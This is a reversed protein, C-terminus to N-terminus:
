ADKNTLWQVITSLVPLDGYVELRGVALMERRLRLTDTFVDDGFMRDIRECLTWLREGETLDDTEFLVYFPRRYGPTARLIEVTIM